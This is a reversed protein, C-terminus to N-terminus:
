VDDGDAEADGADPRSSRRPLLAKWRARVRKSRPTTIRLASSIADVDSWATDADERSPADLAYLAATHLRALSMLPPGAAGAGLAPAQRMAFEVSTASPRREIGAASLRELAESWASLVRRRTDPDHRRNSSRRWAAIAFAVALVILAFLLAAVTIAIGKLVHARTGSQPTSGGGRENPFHAAGAPNDAANTTPTNPSVTTPTTTTPTGLDGRDGRGGLGTIPDTRGPTPEFRYWGIDHGLWVEPWAHADKETVHWLQDTKDYKGPQYGVAIRTPLGVSRALEAYASAYQECFGHRKELFTDLAHADAGLNVNQDYVFTPDDRFRHMLALAKEYPTTADKTAQQAFQRANGSFDPPVATDAAM